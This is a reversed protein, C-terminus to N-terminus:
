FIDQCLVCGIVTNGFLLVFCKLGLFRRHKHTERFGDGDLFALPCAETDAYSSMRARPDHPEDITVCDDVYTLTANLLSVIGNVRFIQLSRSVLEGVIAHIM